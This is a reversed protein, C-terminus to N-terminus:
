GPPSAGRYWRAAEGTFVMVASGVQLLTQIAASVWFIAAAGFWAAPAFAISLLMGASGVGVIIAWIWRAWNRGQYMKWGLLGYLLFTAAASLAQSADPDQRGPMAVVGTWVAANTLLGVIVAAAYSAIAIKVRRPVPGREEVITLDAAPPAFPDHPMAALM